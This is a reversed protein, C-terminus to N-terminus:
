NKAMLKKYLDPAKAKIIELVEPDTPHIAELAEKLQSLMRLQSNQANDFDFDRLFSVLNRQTELDSAQIEKGLVLAIGGILWPESVRMLAQNLAAVVKKDEETMNEGKQGSSKKIRGLAKAASMIIFDQAEFSLLGILDNVTKENSSPKVIAGLVYRALNKVYDNYSSYRGINYDLTGLVGIIDRINQDSLDEKEFDMNLSIMSETRVTISPDNQAVQIYIDLRKPGLSSHLRQIALERVKSDPDNLAAQLIAEGARSDLTHPDSDFRSKGLAQVANLRIDPDTVKEHDLLGIIDTLTKENILHNNNAFKFSASKGAEKNPGSLIEFLVEQWREPALSSEPLHSIAKERIKIDPDNLAVQVLAEDAVPNNSLEKLVYVVRERVQPNPMNRYDSLNILNTLTEETLLSENNALAYSASKRLEESSNSDTLIEVLSRQINENAPGLCGIAGVTYMNWKERPLDSLDLDMQVKLSCLRRVQKSDINKSLMKKVILREDSREIDEPKLRSTYVTEDSDGYATMSYTNNKFVVDIKELELDQEDEIVTGCSFEKNGIMVSAFDKSCKVMRGEPQTDLGVFINEELYSLTSEPNIVRPNKIKNELGSVYFGNELILTKFSVPFGTFFRNSRELVKSMLNSVLTAAASSGGQFPFNTVQFVDDITPYGNFFVVPGFILQHFYNPAALTSDGYDSGSSSGFLGEELKIENENNVGSVILLYDSYTESDKLDMFNNGSSLVILTKTTEAVRSLMRRYELIAGGENIRGVPGCSINVLDPQHRDIEEVLRNDAGELSLNWCDVFPEAGDLTSFIAKYNFGEYDKSLGQLILNGHTGPYARMSGTMSVPDKFFDISSRFLLSYSDKDMPIPVEDIVLVKVGSSITELDSLNGFENQMWQFLRHSFPSPRYQPDSMILHALKGQVYDVPAFGDEAVKNIDGASSNLFEEMLPYRSHTPALYLGKMKSALIHLGNKGGYDNESDLLNKDAGANILSSLFGVESCKRFCHKLVENLLEKDGKVQSIKNNFEDLSKNKIYYKLETFPDKSVGGNEKIWFIAVDRGYKSCKPNSSDFSVDLPSLGPRFRSAVDPDTNESAGLTTQNVDIEKIELLKQLAFLNCSDAAQHIAFYGNNNVSEHINEILPIVKVFLRNDVNAKPDEQLTWQNTEISGRFVPVGGRVSSFLVRKLSEQSYKEPFLSLLSLHLEHNWRNNILDLVHSEGIIDLLGAGCHNFAQALRSTNKQNVLQILHVKDQCINASEQAPANVYVFFFVLFFLRSM